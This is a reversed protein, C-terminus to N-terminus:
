IHLLFLIMYIFKIHIAVIKKYTKNTLVCLLYFNSSVKGSFFVNLKCEMRKRMVSWALAQSLNTFSYFPTFSSHYLNTMMLHSYNIIETNNDYLINSYVKM